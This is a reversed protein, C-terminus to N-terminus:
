DGGEREDGEDGERDDGGDEFDAGAEAELPLSAIVDCGSDQPYPRTPSADAEVRRGKRDRCRREGATRGREFPFRLGLITPQPNITGEGTVPSPWWPRLGEPDAMCGEAMLIWDDGISLGSGYEISERGGSGRTVCLSDDPFRIGRSSRAYEKPDVLGRVAVLAERPKAVPILWTVTGVHGRASGAVAWGFVSICALGSAQLTCRQVADDGQGWTM